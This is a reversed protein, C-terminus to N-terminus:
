SYKTAKNPNMIIQINESTIKIKSIPCNDVSIENGSISINKDKLCDTVSQILLPMSHNSKFNFQLNEYLIHNNLKIYKVYMSEVISQEKLPLQLEYKFSFDGILLEDLNTIVPTKDKFIRIIVYVFDELTCEKLFQKIANLKESRKRQNNQREFIEDITLSDDMDFIYGTYLEELPLTNKNM